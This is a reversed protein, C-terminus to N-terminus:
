RRLRFLLGRPFPRFAKHSRMVLNESVVKSNHFEEAWRAWATWPNYKDLVLRRGDALATKEADDRPVALLQEILKVAGDVDRIDLSKFTDEPFYEGINPCGIYLPFSWGLYADSIKETWYHPVRCNEMVLHARYGQIAELKDDVPRFGRGFHELRDGLRAKLADLFALRERQGPTFAADSCVVSVKNAVEDPCTMKSLKEYGFDFNLRKHDYGIHWTLCPAHLLIRPHGSREHTDVIRHFQRYFAKPYVKKEEPEGAIFLTNERACRMVDRPRANAFVIWFDVDLSEKPNLFFECRGVKANEGEVFGPALLEWGTSKSDITVAVRLGNTRFDMSDSERNM